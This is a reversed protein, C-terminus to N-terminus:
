YRSEKQHNKAAEERIEKLRIEFDILMRRRKSHFYESIRRYESVFFEIACVVYQGDILRRFGDIEMITPVYRRGLTLIDDAVDIVKIGLGREGINQYYRRRDELLDIGALYKFFSKVKSM